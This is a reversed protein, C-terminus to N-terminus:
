KKEVPEGGPPLVDVSWCHYMTVEEAVEGSPKGERCCMRARRITGDAAEFYYYLAWAWMRERMADVPPPYPLKALRYWEQPPDDKAMLTREFVVALVEGWARPYSFRGGDKRYYTSFQSGCRACDFGACMQAQFPELTGGCLECCEGQEEAETVGETEEM